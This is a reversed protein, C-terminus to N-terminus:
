QVRGRNKSGITSSVCYGVFVGGATAFTAWQAASAPSVEGNCTSRYAGWLFLAVFVLTVAAMVQLTKDNNVPAVTRTIKVSGVPMMEQERQKKLEALKKHNHRVMHVGMGAAAGMMAASFAMGMVQLRDHENFVRFTHDAAISQTQQYAARIMLGALVLGAVIALAGLARYGQHEEIRAKGIATTM